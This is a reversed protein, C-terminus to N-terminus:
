LIIFCQMFRKEYKSRHIKVFQDLFIYGTLMYKQTHPLSKPLPQPSRSALSFILPLVPFTNAMTLNGLKLTLQSLSFYWRRHIRKLILWERLSLGSIVQNTNSHFIVTMFLKEWSLGKQKRYHCASGQLELQVSVSTLCLYHTHAIWNVVSLSM